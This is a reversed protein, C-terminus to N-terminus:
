EAKTEEEVSLEIELTTYGAEPSTSGSGGILYQKFVFPNPEFEDGGFGKFTVEASGLVDNCDSFWPAYINNDHAPYIVLSIQPYYLSNNQTFNSTITFVVSDTIDEDLGDPEPYINTYHLKQGCTHVIEGPCVRNSMKEYLPSTDMVVSGGGNVTVPQITPPDTPPSKFFWRYTYRIKYVKWWLYMAQELTMAIPLDCVPVGAPVCFGQAEIPFRGLSLFAM